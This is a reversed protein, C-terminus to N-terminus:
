RNLKESLIRYKDIKESEKRKVTTREFLLIGRIILELGPIRSSIPHDMQEEFNWLIKDWQRACVKIQAYVIQYFKLRLRIKDQAGKTGFEQM